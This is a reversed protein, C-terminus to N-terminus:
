SKEEIIYHHAGIRKRMVFLTEILSKHYPVFAKHDILTLVEELSAWKVAQVEEPQLKLQQLDLDYEILYFDDFGREFNVTLAVPTDTLNIRYGIEEFVEREAAQRSNDGAVASGGVTVDWLNSWGKKFPQRQQILLQGKQNFICVHVVLHYAGDTFRDGRTMTEGTLNRERDYVDWKEM